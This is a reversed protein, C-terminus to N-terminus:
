CVVLIDHSPREEKMAKFQKEFMVAFDNPTIKNDGDQDLLKTFEQRHIEIFM